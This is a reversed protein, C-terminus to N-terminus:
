VDEVEILLIMLLPPLGGKVNKGNKMFIHEM